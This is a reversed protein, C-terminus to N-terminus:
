TQTCLWPSTMSDTSNYLLGHVPRITEGCPKEARKREAPLWRNVIRRCDSHHCRPRCVRCLANVLLCCAPKSDMMDRAGETEWCHHWRGRPMGAATFNLSTIIKETWRPTLLEGHAWHCHLQSRRLRVALYWGWKGSRVVDMGHM